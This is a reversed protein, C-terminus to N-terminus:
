YDIVIAELDPTKKATRRYKRKLEYFKDGKRQHLEHEISEKKLAKNLSNKTDNDVCTAIQNEILKVEAKYVDCVSCTDKRPYGFSINFKQKFINHFTTYGVINEPHKDNYFARLKKINLEEPLYLKESDSPSYHSKRCKLSKIFDFVKTKTDDFLKHPRNSHKGRNDTGVGGSILM